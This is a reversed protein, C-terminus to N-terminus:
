NDVHRSYKTMTDMAIRQMWQPTVDGLQLTPNGGKTRDPFAIASDIQSIRQAFHKRVKILAPLIKTADQIIRNAEWKENQLSNVCKNISVFVADLDAVWNIQGGADQIFSIQMLNRTTSTMKKLYNKSAKVQQEAWQTRAACQSTYPGM